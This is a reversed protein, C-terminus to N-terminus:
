LLVRKRAHASWGSVCAFYYWFFFFFDRGFSAMDFRGALGQLNLTTSNDAQTVSLGSSKM